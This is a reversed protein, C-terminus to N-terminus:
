YKEPQKRGIHLMINFDNYPDSFIIGELATTRAAAAFDLPPVDGSVAARM